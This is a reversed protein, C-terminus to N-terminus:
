AAVKQLTVKTNIPLEVIFNSGKNPETEVRISGGHAEIIQRSIYLGLGLGSIDSASVAREFREFIKSQKELPIGPGSDKVSLVIKDDQASLGVLIPKGPAYKLANSILNIFVQEIRIRDWFGSLKEPISFCIENHTRESEEKFRDVVERLMEPLDMEEPQITLRGASIRSVDLLDEILHSLRDLQRNWTVIYKLLRETNVAEGRQILRHLQQVQLKLPTIPTKLEHSAISLFEDRVHVAERLASEIRKLYTIDVSLGRLEYGVGEGRRALRVGTHLSMEIGEITFFRHDCSLDRGMQAKKFMELVPERDDPHLHNAWFGRETQWQELPYGLLLEARPSVYSFTFTDPDASWVFGHNIGEVLDQFKRESTRKIELLEYEKELLEKQRIVEAQHKIWQKNKYLEAFVAVKARVIAPELPKQIYDVAGISYAKFIHEVDKVMATLFIIPIHRYKKRGKILAAVEYGDMGDMVIDLLILAFEHRLTLKLAETGSTASLIEYGTDSLIAKLADINEQRDDVILIKVPTDELSEIKPTLGKERSRGM